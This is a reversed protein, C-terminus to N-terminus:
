TNPRLPHSRTLASPSENGKHSGFWNFVVEFPRFPVFLRNTESINPMDGSIHEGEPNGHKGRPSANLSVIAGRRHLRGKQKHPKTALGRASAPCGRRHTAFAARRDRRAHSRCRVWRASRKRQGRLWRTEIRLSTRTRSGCDSALAAATRM